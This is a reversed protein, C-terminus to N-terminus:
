GNGLQWAGSGSILGFLYKDVAVGWVDVQNPLILSMDGYKVVNSSIWASITHLLTYGSKM